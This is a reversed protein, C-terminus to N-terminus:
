GNTANASYGGTQGVHDPTAFPRSASKENSVPIRKLKEAAAKFCDFAPWSLVVSAIALVLMADFHFISASSNSGFHHYALFGNIPACLAPMAPLAAWKFGRTVEPAVLQWANKVAKVKGSDEPPKSITTGM